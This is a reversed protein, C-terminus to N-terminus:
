VPLKTLRRKVQLSVLQTKNEFQVIDTQLVILFLNGTSCDKEGDCRWSKFICQGEGCDFQWDQCKAEECHEEDEKGPCDFDGDCQWGSSLCQFFLFTISLAPSYLSIRVYFKTLKKETSFFHKFDLYSIMFRIAEYLTRPLQEKKFKSITTLEFLQLLM